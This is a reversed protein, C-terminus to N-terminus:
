GEKSFLLGKLEKANKALEIMEESPIQRVVEDTEKDIVKIITRNLDEEVEMSLKKNFHNVAKTIEEIAKELRENELAGQVEKGARINVTTDPENKESGSRRAERIKNSPMSNVRIDASIGEM